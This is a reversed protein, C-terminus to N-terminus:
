PTNIANLVLHIITGVITIMVFSLFLSFIIEERRNV